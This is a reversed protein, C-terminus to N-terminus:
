KESRVKKDPIRNDTHWTFLSNGQALPITNSEGEFAENLLTPGLVLTSSEM